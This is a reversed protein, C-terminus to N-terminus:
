RNISVSSSQLSLSEWFLVISCSFLIIEVGNYSAAPWPISSKLSGVGDRAFKISQKSSVTQTGSKVVIIMSPLMSMLPTALVIPSVISDDAAMVAEVNVGLCVIDDMSVTSVVVTMAAVVSQTITM